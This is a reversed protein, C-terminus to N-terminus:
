VHARGIEVRPDDSWVQAVADISEQDPEERRIEPVWPTLLGWGTDAPNTEPFPGAVPTTWAQYFRDDYPSRVIDGAVYIGDASWWDGAYSTAAEAWNDSSVPEDNTATLAQYYKDEPPYYRWAPATPTSYPVGEAPDWLPAFYRREATPCLESWFTYRWAYQACRNLWVRLGPAVATALETKGTYILAAQDLVSKYTVRRM